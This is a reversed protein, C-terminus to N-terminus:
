FTLIFSSCIFFRRYSRHKDYLIGHGWWNSLEGKEIVKQFHYGGGIQWNFPGRGISLGTQLETMLRGKASTNLNEDQVRAFSDGVKVVYYFHGLGRNASKGRVEAFFPIVATNGYADYGIGLGTQFWSSFVYGGSLQLSPSLLTAKESENGSSGLLIAMQNVVYWRNELGTKVSSEVPENIGTSSNLSEPTGQALISNIGFITLLFLIECFKQPQM